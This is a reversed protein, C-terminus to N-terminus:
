LFSFLHQFFSTVTDFLNGGSSQDSPGPAGSTGSADQGTDGTVANPAPAPGQGTMSAGADGTDASPTGAAQGQDAPQAPQAPNTSGPANTRQGRQPIGDRITTATVSTGSVTGQAMITDGVAIDSLSATANNKTIAANSADVTYTAPTAQAANQGVGRSQVTITSGDIATVTGFVGPRRAQGSPGQGGQWPQGGASGTGGNPAQTQAMAVNTLLLSATVLTGGIVWSIHANNNM